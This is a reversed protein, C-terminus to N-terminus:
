MCINGSKGRRRGVLSLRSLGTFRKSGVIVCEVFFNENQNWRSLLFRDGSV